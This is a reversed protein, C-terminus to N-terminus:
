VALILAPLFVGLALHWSQDLAWAGTGLSPLDISVWEGTGTQVLSRRPSGLRLFDAKGPIARALRFMLGHERRDAAYHTVASVGLALLWSALDFRYGLTLFVVALVVAQTLTYTAVHLLCAIRGAPGADGKRLAQRDTQVWYDGVHHAVYLAIFAAAFM